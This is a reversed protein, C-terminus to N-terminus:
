GVAGPIASFKYNASLATASSPWVGSKSSEGWANPKRTIRLDYIAYRLKLWTKDGFQLKGAAHDYSRQKM